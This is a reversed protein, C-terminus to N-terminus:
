RINSWPSCRARLMDYAPGPSTLINPKYSPLRRAALAASNKILLRACGTLTGRAFSPLGM